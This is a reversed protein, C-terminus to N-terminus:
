KGGLIVAGADPQRVESKREFHRLLRSVVTASSRQVHRWLNHLVLLLPRHPGSRSPPPPNDYTISKTPINRNEQNYKNAKLMRTRSRVGNTQNPLSCHHSSRKELLKRWYSSPTIYGTMYESYTFYRVKFVVEAYQKWRPTSAMSSLFYSRSRERRQQTQYGPCLLEKYAQKDSEYTSVIMVTQQGRIEFSLSTLGQHICGANYLFGNVVKHDGNVVSPFPAKSHRVHHLKGNSELRRPHLAGM